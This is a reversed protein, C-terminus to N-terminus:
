FEITYGFKKKYLKYLNPEVQYYEGDEEFHRLALKHGTGVQVYHDEGDVNHSSTGAYNNAKEIWKLIKQYEEKLINIMKVGLYILAM